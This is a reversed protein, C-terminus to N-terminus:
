DNIEIMSSILEHVKANAKYNNDDFCSKIFEAILFAIILLIAFLLMEQIMIANGEPVSGDINLEQEIAELKAQQEALQKAQEWYPKAQEYAAAIAPEFYPQAGMKWTGYEVYQAYHADAQCTFSYKDYDANISSMLNGTDVPVLDQSVSKFTEAFIRNGEEYSVIYPIKITGAQVVIVGGSETPIGIYYPLEAEYSDLYDFDENTGKFYLGM